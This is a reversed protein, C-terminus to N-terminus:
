GKLPVLLADMVPPTEFLGVKRWGWRIYMAYAMSGSTAALTAFKESRGSLLEELLKKGTGKRRYTRRVDLEIVAFKSSDLVEYTPPTCDAWWQGPPFPYGFSFGVLIDGSTATIVEFGAKRAQSNTRATFSPRSFLEDHEDPNESHIEMYLDTIDELMAPMQEGSHREFIIETM